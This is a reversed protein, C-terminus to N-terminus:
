VPSPLLDKGHPSSEQHRLSGTLPTEPQHIYPSLQCIPLCPLACPSQCTHIETATSDWVLTSERSRVQRERRGAREEGSEIHQKEGAEGERMQKVTGKKGEGM